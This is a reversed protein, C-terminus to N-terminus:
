FGARAIISRLEATKDPSLAQISAAKYTLGISRYKESALQHFFLLELRISNREQRTARLGNVFEAIAIIEEPQDNVTPVVPVRFLIPKDTQGLRRINDLIRSNSRGTTKKHKDSDMIKIDIMLMDILTLVGSLDQWSIDACTEVATHLGEQKCAKLLAQSFNIQLLPEGGSLTVGGGSTEYFATDQLIEALVQAVEMRRGSMQLAGAYCNDVCRGCLVCRERHLMHEGNPLEHVGHECIQVCKGCGICRYPWFQVEIRKHLGEPNHCWFCGLPCGKLFVTTRIGPGDHISFRQINFVIGSSDM